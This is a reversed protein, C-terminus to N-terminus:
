WSNMRSRPRAQAPRCPLPPGGCAGRRLLASHQLSGEPRGERLEGSLSVRGGWVGRGWSGALMQSRLRDHGNAADMTGPTHGAQGGVSAAKGPAAKTGSM